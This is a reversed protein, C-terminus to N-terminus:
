IRDPNPCSAPVVLMTDLTVQSGSPTSSATPRACMLSSTESDLCTHAGADPWHKGPLLSAAHHCAPVATDGSFGLWLGM